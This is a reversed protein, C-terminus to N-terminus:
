YKFEKNYLNPLCVECPTLNCFQHVKGSLQWGVEILTLGIPWDPREFDWDVRGSRYHTSDNRCCAIPFPWMTLNKLNPHWFRRERRLSIRCCMRGNGILWLRDILLRRSRGRLRCRSCGLLGRSRVVFRGARCDRGGLMSGMLSLM